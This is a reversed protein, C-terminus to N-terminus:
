ATGVSFSSMLFLYNFCVYPFTSFIRIFFIQVDITTDPGAGQVIIVCDFYGGRGSENGNKIERM